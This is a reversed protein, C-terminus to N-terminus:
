NQKTQNWNYIVRKVTTTSRSTHEAIQRISYKELRMALITQREKNTLFTRGTPKEMTKM